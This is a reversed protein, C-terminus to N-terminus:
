DNFLFHVVYLVLASNPGIVPSQKSMCTVFYVWVRRSAVSVKRKSEFNQMSGVENVTFSSLEKLAPSLSKVLVL